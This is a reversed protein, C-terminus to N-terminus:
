FADEFVHVDSGLVSAVDFRCELASAGRAALFAEALQRLKRQKKWGVAEYGAGFGTGARTKVEVFVVLPGRRVILDLEGLPCRWNRQLLGFGRALYWDM